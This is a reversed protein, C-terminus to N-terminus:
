QEIKNNLPPLTHDSTMQGVGLTDGEDILVYYVSDIAIPLPIRNRVNIGTKVLATDKVLELSLYEVGEVKPFYKKTVILYTLGGIITLLLLSLVIWGIKKKFM